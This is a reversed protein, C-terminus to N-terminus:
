CSHHNNNHAPQLRVPEVSVGSVHEGLEILAAGLWHRFGNGNSVERALRDEAAISRASRHNDNVLIDRTDENM